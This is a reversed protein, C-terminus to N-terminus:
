GSYMNKDQLCTELWFLWNLLTTSQKPFFRGYSQMTIMVLAFTELYGTEGALMEVGENWCALRGFTIYSNGDRAPLATHVILISLLFYHLCTESYYNVVWYQL